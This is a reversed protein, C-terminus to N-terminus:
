CDSDLIGIEYNRRYTQRYNKSITAQLVYNSCRTRTRNRLHITTGVILANDAEFDDYIKLKDVYRYKYQRPCNSYTSVKSYSYM